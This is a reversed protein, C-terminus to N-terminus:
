STIPFVGPRVNEFPLTSLDAPGWDPSDVIIIEEALDEYVARFHTKSRLVIIDFTRADLGFQLFADEDIASMSRAVVSVLIGDADILATPGLEIKCGRRMPGTGVFSKEGCYLVKGTLRVPGGARDSSHGGVDLTVIAGEGAQIAQAAAHPDWLFPVAVNRVKQEVLERLVWTSDNVRDAHELLVVPKKATKACQRARAIGDALSFVQDRHLLSERQDWVRAALDDAARAALAADGDAVVVVSFGIQPVDAYAFGSFVTVDVIGEKAQWDFGAAVIDRLPSLATATFISPLAVPAKVLAVTPAMDGRVTAVLCRAARTGTEVMDTHPSYHYGMLATCLDLMAPDLNAHYDLAVVLPIDPGIVQRVARLLDSEPDSRSPTTMAGHLFLLVGDLAGAADLGDCIEACYREFAADAAHGAASFDTYVLPVIEAGAAELVNIFGAAASETGRLDAVLAEGRCAVSEFDDIGAEGPLFSVSELAFGGIAVRM